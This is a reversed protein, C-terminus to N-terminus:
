TNIKWKHGLQQSFFFFLCFLCKHIARKKQVCLRIHNPIESHGIDCCWRHKQCPSFWSSISREKFNLPSIIFCIFSSSVTGIVDSTQISSDIVCEADSSHCCILWCFAVSEAHWVIGTHLIIFYRNQAEYYPILTIGKVKKLRNNTWKDWWNM